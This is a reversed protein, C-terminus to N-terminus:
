GAFSFKEPFLIKTKPVVYFDIIASAEEDEGGPCTIVLRVKDGKITENFTIPVTCPELMSLGSVVASLTTSHSTYRSWDIGSAKKITDSLAPPVFLFLMAVSVLMASTNSRLLKDMM